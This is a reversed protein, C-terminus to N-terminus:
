DDLEEWDNQDVTEAMLWDNDLRCVLRADLYAQALTLITQGQYNGSEVRQVVLAVDAHNDENLCLPLLLSMTNGRPYFMPVATKYNWRVRKVALDVADKVRNRLRNFLRADNEILLALESIRQRKAYFNHTREIRDILVLAQPSDYCQVRVFSMPLRKLNDIIIHQYDVIPTLKTEYLVDRLDEFYTAAQPLPNFKETLKKGLGREGARCFGALQWPSSGGRNKEFCAYIEDYSPTVLGTNFAAFDEEKTISIKHQMQLRYFTYCLYSHLLQKEKGPISPGGLFDWNEPLAMESLTRLTDNWVGMYAFAELAKGPLTRRLRQPEAGEAPNERFDVFFWPQVAGPRLNKEFFAYIPKGTEAFVMGTDFWAADPTETPVIQDFRRTLYEMPAVQTGCLANLTNVKPIALYAFEFLKPGHGQGEENRPLQPRLREAPNERFDVLFWPQLAGPRLNREFYAYIPREVGRFTLGTDFWAATETQTPVIREFREALYDMPVGQLGSLMPLLNVRPMPLFAFEFLKSGAHRERVPLLGKGHPLAAKHLPKPAEPYPQEHAPRPGRPGEPTGPHPARGPESKTQEPKKPPLKKGPAPRPGKSKEPHPEKGPKNGPEPHVMTAAPAGPSPFTDELTFGDLQEMFQRLKAYGLTKYELGEKRLCNGVDAMPISPQGAFAQRIVEQARCKVEEPLAPQPTREPMTAENPRTQVHLPLKVVTYPPQGPQCIRDELTFADLASMLDKLKKFGFEKYDLHEKSLFNGIEAM